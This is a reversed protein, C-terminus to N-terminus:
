ELKGMWQLERIYTPKTRLQIRFFHNVGKLISRRSPPKPSLPFFLHHPPTKESNQNKIGWGGTSKKEEEDFKPEVKKKRIKRTIKQSPLPALPHLRFLIRSLISELRWESVSTSFTIEHWTYRQFKSINKENM